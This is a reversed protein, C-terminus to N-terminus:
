GLVIKNFAEPLNSVAAEVVFGLAFAKVYDFGRRGFSPEKAQFQWFYVVLAIVLALTFRANVFEDAISRMVWVPSENIQLPLTGNGLVQDKAELSRPQFDTAVAVRVIPTLPATYRHEFPRKRLDEASRQDPPTRDGYDVAVVVGAGWAPDLNGIEFQISRDTNRDADEPTATVTLDRPGTLLRRMLDIAQQVGSNEAVGLRVAAPLPTANLVATFVEQSLENAEQRLGYLPSASTQEVEFSNEKRRLDEALCGDASVQRSKTRIRDLAAEWRRLDPSDPVFKMNADTEAMSRQLDQDFNRCYAITVERAAAQIRKLSYDTWAQLLAKYPASTGALEGQALLADIAALRGDLDKRTPQDAVSAVLPRWATLVRRLWSARQEPSDHPAPPDYAMAEDIATTATEASTQTVAQQVQQVLLGSQVRLLQTGAELVRRYAEALSALPASASIQAGANDLAATLARREDGPIGPDALRWRTTADEALLSRALHEFNGLAVLRQDLDHAARQLWRRVEIAQQQAAERQGAALTLDVLTVHTGIESTAAEISSTLFSTRFTTLFADLQGALNTPTEGPLAESRTSLVQLRQQLDKWAADLEAVEAAGPAEHAMAGKITKLEEKAVRQREEAMSARWDVVSWPRRRTLLQVAAQMDTEYADLNGALTSPVPNRRLWDANDARLQQLNALRARLDSETQLTSILGALILGLLTFAIGRLPSAAVTVTVPIATTAGGDMRIRLVSSYIGARAPIQGALSIQVAESPGVMKDATQPASVSLRADMVAGTESDQLPDCEVRSIAVADAGTNVLAIEVRALDLSAHRRLPATRSLNVLPPGVLPSPAVDPM